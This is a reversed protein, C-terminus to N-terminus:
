IQENSGKCFYCGSKCPKSWFLKGTEEEIIRYAFNPGENELHKILDNIDECDSRTTQHSSTIWDNSEGLFQILYKM